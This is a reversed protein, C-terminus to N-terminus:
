ELEELFSVLSEVAEKEDERKASITVNTGRVLGLTQLKFM